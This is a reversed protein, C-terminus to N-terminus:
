AYNSTQLFADAWADRIIFDPHKIPFDIAMTPLNALHNNPNQTHTGGPGYGINSILNVNPLIHLGSQLLSAFTFQFDWADIKKAYTMEFMHQWYRTIHVGGIAEIQRQGDRMVTQISGFIDFLWRGDRVKPWLTIDFDYYNWVRRWTAWGCTQNYRSFYYSDSTRRRGYQFNDGSISMIRGDDRYKELLEQCYPFFTPHPLCDDELIIAEEVMSFVWDFGTAPRRGCGLNIDSYNKLVECDWDISEIIARAAACKAIDDPKNDRPGDAIVLLKSPRAKCIEAFVRKTTDPRNFIVFAVPTTLSFESM